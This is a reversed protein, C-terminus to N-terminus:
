ASERTPQITIPAATSTSRTLIVIVSVLVM